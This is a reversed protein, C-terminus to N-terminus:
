EAGVNIGSRAMSEQAAAMNKATDSGTNAAEVSQAQQQAQADEERKADRAEPDRMYRRSLGTIRATDRAWEDFDFNDVVNPQYAQLNSIIALTDGMARLEDSRQSRALPGEFVVDIRGGMQQLIEPMPLFADARLMLSFVRALMPTLLEDQIRGISPGLLQHLFEMRQVVETATPPTKAAPAFQLIQETFFIQRIQLKSENEPISDHQFNAGTVFPTLAGDMRIRNIAGPVLRPTGIVGDDIALIPPHVSLAWQRLKLQRARNLTAVEPMALHGRGFGWVEQSAKDWRTVMFPDEHFFNEACQEMDGTMGSANVSMPSQNAMLWYTSDFMRRKNPRVDQMMTVRQWPKEAHLKRTRQSYEGDPFREFVGRITTSFERNTYCLKGIGNEQITYSGMPVSQFMLGRFDAKPNYEYDMEQVYLNGTGFGVIERISEAGSTKYNSANIADFMRGSTDEMWYQVEPMLNVDPDSHKLSFWKVVASTGTGLILSVLKDMADIGTTDFLKTTKRYGEFGRTTINSMNPMLYEAIRQCESLVVTRDNRLERQEQILFKADVM